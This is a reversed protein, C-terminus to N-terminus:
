PRRDIKGVLVSELGLLAPVPQFLKEICEIAEPCPPAAGKVRGKRLPLSEKLEYLLEPLREVLPHATVPTDSKLEVASVSPQRGFVGPLASGRRALSPDVKPPQAISAPATPSQLRSGSMLTVLKNHNTQHCRLTARTHVAVGGIAKFILHRLDQYPPSRLATVLLTVSGQLYKAEFLNLQSGRQVGDVHSRECHAAMREPVEIVAQRVVKDRHSRCAWAREFLTDIQSASLNAGRADLLEAVTLLAGHVVETASESSLGNLTEEYVRAYWRERALGPRSAILSLCARLVAAAGHRTQLRVDRM